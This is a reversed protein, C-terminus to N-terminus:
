EGTAVLPSGAAFAVGQSTNPDIQMWRELTIGDPSRWNDEIVRLVDFTERWSALVNRLIEAVRRNLREEDANMAYSSLLGRDFAAARCAKVLVGCATRQAALENTENTSIFCDWNTSPM